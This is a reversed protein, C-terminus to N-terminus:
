QLIGRAVQIAEPLFDAVQAYDIDLPEEIAYQPYQAAVAAHIPSNHSDSAALARELDEGLLFRMLTEATRPNPGGKILAATNPIALTGRGGQDLVHMAVPWGNRQGAYIDDTDTFCIDAQGTAIMRVATSNGSVVRVGNARLRRLIEGNLPAPSEKDAIARLTHRLGGYFAHSRGVFEPERGGTDQYVEFIGSRSPVKSRVIRRELRLLPSWHITFYVSDRRTMKQIEPEM